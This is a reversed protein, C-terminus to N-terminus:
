PSHANQPGRGTNRAGSSRLERPCEQDVQVPMLVQSVPVLSLSSSASGSILPTGRCHQDPDQSEATVPPCTETAIRLITVSKGSVCRIEVRGAQAASALQPTM